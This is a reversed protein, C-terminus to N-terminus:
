ASPSDGATPTERRGKVQESLVESLTALSVIVLGLLTMFLFIALFLWFGGAAVSEHPLVPLTAFTIVFTDGSQSAFWIGPGLGSAIVAIGILKADLYGRSVRGLLNVVPNALPVLLQQVILSPRSKRGLTEAIADVLLLLTYIAVVHGLFVWFQFFAFDAGAERLEVADWIGVAIGSALVLAAGSPLLMADEGARGRLANALQSVGFCLLAYMGLVLATAWFALFAFRVSDVADHTDIAQWVGVGLAAGFLAFALLKGGDAVIDLPRAFL